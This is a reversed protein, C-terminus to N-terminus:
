IPQDAPRKNIRPMGTSGLSRRADQQPPLVIIMGMLFWYFGAAKVSLMSISVLISLAFTLATGHVYFRQDSRQLDPQLYLFAQLIALGVLSQATVLYAIGSDALASTPVSFGALDYWDLKFLQKMGRALRGTLNDEISNWALADSFIRTLLVGARLYLLELSIPLRRLLPALVLLM